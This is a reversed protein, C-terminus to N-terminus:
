ELVSWFPISIIGNPSGPNVVARLERDRELLAPQAGAKGERV